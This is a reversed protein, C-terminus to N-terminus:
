EDWAPIDDLGNLAEFEETVQRQYDLQEHRRRRHERDLELNREVRDRHRADFDNQVQRARHMEREVWERSPQAYATYAVLAGGLAFGIAAVWRIM